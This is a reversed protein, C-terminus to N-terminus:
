PFIVGEEILAVLISGIMLIPATIALLVARGRLGKNYFYASLFLALAAAILSGIFLPGAKGLGILGM